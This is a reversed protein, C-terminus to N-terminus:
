YMPALLCGLPSREPQVKIFQGGVGDIGLAQREL